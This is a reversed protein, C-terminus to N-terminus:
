DIVPLALWQALAFVYNTGWSSTALIDGEPTYTWVDANGQRRQPAAPETTAPDM